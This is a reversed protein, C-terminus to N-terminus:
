LARAQIFNGSTHMYGGRIHLAAEWGSSDYDARADVKPQTTGENKFRPSPHTTHIRSRHGEATCICGSHLAGGTIKFAWRDNLAQAHTANVYYLSGRNSEAVGGSRDFTGIGFTFTTGLMERPPKTIINVVGNMAYAGWVASAPGRIVEVQKVDDLNTPM